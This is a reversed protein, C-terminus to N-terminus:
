TKTVFSKGKAKQQDVTEDDLLAILALTEFELVQKGPTRMLLRNFVNQASEICNTRTDAPGFAYSFLYTKQIFTLAKRFRLVSSISAVEFQLPLRFFTYSIIFKRATQIVLIV